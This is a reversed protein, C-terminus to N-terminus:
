VRVRIGDSPTAGVVRHLESSREPLPMCVTVTLRSCGAAVRPPITCPADLPLSTPMSAAARWGVIRRSYADTVFATFAMASWTPVYTYDVM